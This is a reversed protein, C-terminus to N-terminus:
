RSGEMLRRMQRCDDALREMARVMDDFRDTMERVADVMALVTEDDVIPTEPDPAATQAPQKAGNRKVIRAGEM